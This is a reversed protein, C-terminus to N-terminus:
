HIIHDLIVHSSFGVAGFLVLVAADVVGFRLFYAIAILVALFLALGPWKHISGRHRPIFQEYSFLFVIPLVVFLVQELWSSNWFRWSFFLYLAIIGVLGPIIGRLVKRPLSHDHDIDPFESAIICIIAGLFLAAAGIGMFSLIVALGVGCITGAILHGQSDAM